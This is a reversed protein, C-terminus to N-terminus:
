PRTDCSLVPDSQGTRKREQATRRRMVRHPGASATCLSGGAAASGQKVRSGVGGTDGGGSPVRTFQRHLVIALRSCGRRSVLRSCTLTGWETCLSMFEHRTLISKARLDSPVPLYALLRVEHMEWEEALMEPLYGVLVHCLLLPDGLGSCILKSDLVDLAGVDLRVHSNARTHTETRERRSAAVHVITVPTRGQRGTKTRAAKITFAASLEGCSFYWYLMVGGVHGRAHVITELASEARVFDDIRLSALKKGAHTLKGQRSTGVGLEDACIREQFAAEVALRSAVEAARQYMERPAVVEDGGIESHMSLLFSRITGDDM